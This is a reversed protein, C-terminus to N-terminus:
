NFFLKLDVKFLYLKKSITKAYCADGREAPPPISPTGGILIEFLPSLPPLATVPLSQQSLPPSKKSPPNCNKCLFYVLDSKKPSNIAQLLPAQVTQLNLTPHNPSFPPPTKPLTSVGIVSHNTSAYRVNPQFKGKHQRM